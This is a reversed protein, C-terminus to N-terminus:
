SEKQKCNNTQKQIKNVKKKYLHVNKTSKRVRKTKHPHTNKIPWYTQLNTNYNNKRKEAKTEIIKKCSGSYYLVTQLLAMTVRVMGKTMQTAVYLYIGAPKM